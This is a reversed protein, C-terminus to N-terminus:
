WGWTGAGGKFPGVVRHTIWGGYFGGAQSTVVEGDVLCREMAGPMVAVHGALAEFGHRPRPYTWAASQALADGGTVDFYAAEGKWECVSSGATLRLAGELWDEVPLYYTPPHSTELVRLTRTSAAVRVGGLWVEVSEGSPDVAPPRPYDWVSEQGPGAPEPVPRTM